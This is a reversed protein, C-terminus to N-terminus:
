DYIANTITPLSHVLLFNRTYRLPDIVVFCVRLIMSVKRAAVSRETVSMEVRVSRSDARGLGLQSAVLRPVPRSTLLRM